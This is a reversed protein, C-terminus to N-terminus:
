KRSSQLMRSLLWGAAFAMAAAMLPKEQMAAEARETMEVAKHKGEEFQAKATHASATGISSVAECVEASASKLQEIAQGLSPDSTNTKGNGGLAVDPNPTITTTSM